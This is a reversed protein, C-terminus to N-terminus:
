NDNSLRLVKILVKLEHVLELGEGVLCFAHGIVAWSARAQIRAVELEPCGPVMKGMKPAMDVLRTLSFM